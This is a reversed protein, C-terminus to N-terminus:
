GSSSGELSPSVYPLLKSESYLIDRVYIVKSLTSALKALHLSPYISLTYALKALHKNFKNEYNLMQERRRRHRAHMRTTSEASSAQKILPAM